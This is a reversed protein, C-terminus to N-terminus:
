AAEYDDDDEDDDHAAGLLGVEPYDPKKSLTGAERLDNFIREAMKGKDGRKAVKNAVGRIAKKTTSLKVADKAANGLHDQLIQATTADCKIKETGRKLRIGVREGNMLELPLGHQKIRAAAGTTLHHGVARLIHGIEWVYAAHEASEFGSAVLPFLPAVSEDLKVIAAKVAPCQSIVPCYLDACHVGYVPLSPRKVSEVIALQEDRIIDLDWDNFHAPDIYVDDDESVHWLQVAVETVKFLARMAIGYWRMQQMDKCRVSRAARGTKHDVVFWLGGTRYLWDIKGVQEGRHARDKPGLFRATDTVVDYAVAVEFHEEDIGLGRVESLKALLRETCKRFTEDDKGRLEHDAAIKDVDVPEGKCHLDAVLHVARGHQTAVKNSGADFGPWRLGGNWPTQCVLALDLKSPSPLKV